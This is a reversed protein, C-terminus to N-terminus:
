RGTLDRPPRRDVARPPRAARRLLRDRQRQVAAFLRANGLALAAQDAFAEALRIEEQSFEREPVDRLWLGGVVVGKFRLPLALASRYPVDVLAATLRARVDPTYTIRPDDLNDRTHVARGERAALGVMGTGPALVVKSDGLSGLDGAEALSVFNDSDLDLQFLGAVKVRLLALVADVIRQGVEAPDLSESVLRGVEALSEAAQRRREADEYLRANELALAAQDAFAQALQIEEAEFVRGTRDRLSLAGIVGDKILLPVALVSRHDSEAFESIDAPNVTIRPDALVDSTTVPCRERVCAGVANTGALVVGNPSTAPPTHGSGAVVRLDGGPELRMLVVRASKLLGRLSEVIREGVREVELSTSLLRGVEALSEAARRRRETEGYIRANRIAIAAHDALRLLIREDRDTFPRLTRNTVYLLGEVRDGTRIPVVMESVAGEIEAVAAYEKSIRPDALYDDTRCPRGTALVQGSLGRGPVIPLTAYGAYRAGCCHTIIMENGGPVPLALRALDSACLERAGEVVRTLVTSLDLSSNITGALDALVEAERREQRAEEYLRANRLALAAQNAFVSLQRLEEDDYHRGCVDRLTLAGLLEGAATLPIALGSSYGEAEIRARIWAPLTLRADDLSYDATWAPRGERLAIGNLGSDAPMTRGVWEEEAGSGASAVCRLLGADADLAFLIARRIGFLRMVATVIQEATRSLELTASLERAVQALERTVEEARKRATIDELAGEWGILRGEADRIARATDRAWFISGDRRQLQKAFDRIVGDRELQSTWRHRDERDVYLARATTALLTERDPYGLIQVLAPNADLLTGDPAARYLGVPVREFLQQLREEVSKRETIDQIMKVGYLVTGDDNRVIISTIHCWIREGSKRVFRSERSIFPIDGALLRQLAPVGEATDAPDTFDLVHRRVLEDAPYGLMEAFQRNVGVFVLANPDFIVMGLPGDEFIKRFREESDRWARVTSQLEAESRALRDMLAGVRALPHEIVKGHEGRGGDVEHLRAPPSDKAPEPSAHPLVSRTRKGASNGPGDGSGLALWEVTVGLDGALRAAYSFSPRRGQLWGYVYQPTYGHEECFRRIDPRDHKWYGLVRLRERIRDAVGQIHSM